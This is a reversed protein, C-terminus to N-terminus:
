FSIQTLFYSTVCFTYIELESRETWRVSKRGEMEVLSLEYEKMRISGENERSTVMTIMVLSYRSYGNPEGYLKFAHKCVKRVGMDKVNM